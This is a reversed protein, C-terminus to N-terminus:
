FVRTKVFTRNPSPTNTLAIADRIAAAIKDLDVKARRRLAERIVRAAIAQGQSRCLSRDTWQALAAEQESASLKSIEDARYLSIQGSALAARVKPSAAAQIRRIRM